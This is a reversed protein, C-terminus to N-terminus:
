CVEMFGEDRTEPLCAITAWYTGARKKTHGRKGSQGVILQAATGDNAEGTKRKEKGGVTQIRVACCRDVVATCNQYYEAFSGPQM